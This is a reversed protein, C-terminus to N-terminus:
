SAPRLMALIAQREIRGQGRGIQAARPPVSLSLAYNEALILRGQEHSLIHAALLNSILIEIRGVAGVHFWVPRFGLAAVLNPLLDALRGVIQGSRELRMEGPNSPDCVLQVQDTEGIGLRHAYALHIMVRYFPQQALADQWTTVVPLASDFLPRGGSDFLALSSHVSGRAITWSALSPAPLHGDATTLSFEPLLVLKRDEFDKNDPIGVPVAHKGFKKLVAGFLDQPEGSQGLLVQDWDAVDSPGTFLPMFRQRTEDPSLDVLRNGDMELSDLLNNLEGTLTPVDRAVWNELADLLNKQAADVLGHALIALLRQRYAPIRFLVDRLLNRDDSEGGVVLLCPTAFVQGQDNGTIIRSDKFLKVWGQCRFAVIESPTAEGFNCLHHLLPIAANTEPQSAPKSM